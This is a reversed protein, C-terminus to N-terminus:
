KQRLFVQEMHRRHALYCECATEELGQRDIIEIQCRQYRILGAQQLARAVL